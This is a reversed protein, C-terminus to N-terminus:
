LKVIKYEMRDKERAIQYGLVELVEEITERVAIGCETTDWCADRYIELIASIEQKNLEVINEECQIKLRFRKMPRM